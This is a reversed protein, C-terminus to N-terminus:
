SARSQLRVGQSRAEGVEEDAADPRRVSAPVGCRKPMEVEFDVGAVCHSQGM